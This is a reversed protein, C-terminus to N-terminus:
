KQLARHFRVSRHLRSRIRFERREEGETRMRVINFEGAASNDRAFGAGSPLRMKYNARAAFGASMARWFLADAFCFFGGGQQARCDFKNFEVAISMQFDPGCMRDLERSDKPAYLRADHERWTKSLILMRVM